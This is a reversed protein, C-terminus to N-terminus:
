RENGPLTFYDLYPQIGPSDWDHNGLVPFFRNIEGGPGYAGTYPAIFPAYYQGINDDITDASGSPYNNDGLTIIIEPNWSFVLEAVDDEEASDAGYDGIAAFVFPTPIATNTPAPADAPPQPTESPLVTESPESVVVPLSVQPTLILTPTQQQATPATLTPTTSRTCAALFIFFLLLPSLPFLHPRSSPRPLM